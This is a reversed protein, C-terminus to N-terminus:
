LKVTATIVAPLRAIERPHRKRLQLCEPSPSWERIRSCEHSGPGQQFEYAHGAEPCDDVGASTRPNARHSKPNGADGNIVRNDHPAIRPEATVREGATVGMVAITRKSIKNAKQESRPINVSIATIVPV